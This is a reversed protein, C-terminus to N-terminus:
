SFLRAPLMGQTFVTIAQVDNNNENDTLANIVEFAGFLTRLPIEAVSLTQVIFARPNVAFRQSCYRCPACLGSM